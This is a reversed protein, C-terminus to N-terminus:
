IKTKRGKKLKPSQYCIEQEKPCNSEVEEEVHNECIRKFRNINVWAHKTIIYTCETYEPAWLRSHAFGM